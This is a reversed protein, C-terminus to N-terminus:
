RSRANEMASSQQSTEAWPALLGILSYYGNDDLIPKAKCTCKGAMAPPDCACGLKGGYINRNVLNGTNHCLAGYSAVKTRDIFHGSDNGAHKQFHNTYTRAVVGNVDVAADVLSSSVSAEVPDYSDSGNGCGFGQM